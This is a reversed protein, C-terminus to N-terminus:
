RYPLPPEGTVPALSVALDENDREWRLTGDRSDMEIGPTSLLSSPNEMPMDSEREDAQDGQLDSIGLVM